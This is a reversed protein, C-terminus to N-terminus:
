SSGHVKKWEEDPWAEVNFTVTAGVALAYRLLLFTDTVGQNELALIEHKDVPFSKEVDELTLGRDRRIQWLKEAMESRSDTMKIAAMQSPDNEDIGLMVYLDSM